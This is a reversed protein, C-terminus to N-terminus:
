KGSYRLARETLKDLEKQSMDKTAIVFEGSFILPINKSQGSMDMKVAEAIAVGNDDNM